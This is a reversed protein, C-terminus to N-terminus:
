QNDINVAPVSKNIDNNHSFGHKKKNNTKPNM